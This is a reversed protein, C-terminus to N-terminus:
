RKLSNRSLSRVFKKLSSKTNSIGSRLDLSQSRTLHTYATYMTEVEAEYQIEATLSTGHFPSTEKINSDNDDAWAIVRRISQPPSHNHVKPLEISWTDGIRRELRIRESKSIRIKLKGPRDNYLVNSSESRSLKLPYIVNKIEINIPRQFYCIKRLFNDDVSLSLNCPSIKEPLCSGPNSETDDDKFKMNCPGNVFLILTQLHQLWIKYEQSSICVILLEYHCHNFQIILKFSYPYTTYLGGESEKEDSIIVCQSLPIIFKYDKRFHGHQSLILHSKFLVASVQSNRLSQDEMWITLLSGVLHHKGFFSLPVNILTPNLIIELKPTKNAQLRVTEKNIIQLSKMTLELTEEVIKYLSNNFKLNRLLAELFLRYKGFRTIPKQILSIFSLDHSKSIPQTAELYRNLSRLISKFSEDKQNPENLIDLIEQFVDCYQVYVYYRKVISILSDCIIEIMENVSDIIKYHAPINYLPGHLQLMDEIISALLKLPVGSGFRTNSFNFLPFVYYKLTLDLLEYYSIETNILEQILHKIKLDEGTIIVGASYEIQPVPSLFTPSFSAPLSLSSPLLYSVVQSHEHPKTQSNPVVVGSFNCDPGKISIEPESHETLELPLMKHHVSLRLLEQPSRLKILNQSKQM